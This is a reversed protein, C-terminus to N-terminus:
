SVPQYVLWYQYILVFPAQLCLVVHTLAFRGRRWMEAVHMVDVAVNVAAAVVALAAFDILEKVSRARSPFLWGEGLGVFTLWTIILFLKSLHADPGRRGDEAGRRRSLRGESGASMEVQCLHQIENNKIQGPGCPDIRRAHLRRVPASDTFTNM